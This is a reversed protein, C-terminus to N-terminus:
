RPVRAPGRRQRVPVPTIELVAAGNAAPLTVRLGRALQAGRQRALLRGSGADTVTYLVGPRVGQLPLTQAGEPSEQRFAFVVGRGHRWPEFAAWRHDDIPDAATLEYAGDSLVARNARYWSLWRAVRAADADSLKTLDTWFTVHSLLAIAMLEDIGHRGDLTGDLAGIGISSTPIWPAATWLDHILKAWKTSGHLHGNDFWSPGLALSEFPWSRQDNTEDLEFTVRPHRAQFTRVLSVFADEYDVYDHPPCDVWAMFDFKLERVDYTAVLRDVVDILHSRLGPNTVDWVGLGADDPVQATVDGTPACAWDPHAAYTTSSQNFELPSMWLGLRLGQDHVYRVFDPIGDRDSDPFRVPDFGWDGSEGGPGGQWQDDLMYTEIGLRKARDIQARLNPDSMGPGHNFPHFSNAGISRPYVPAVHDLDAVFAQAAEQAGGAYVGTFASGLELTTGPPVTRERVPVPHLPNGVRNYDPPDSKLPGADFVDRPPDVGVYTRGAADRGARYMSGGRHGSVLFWGEGQGDDYRAVQGERDFAGSPRSIERYDDRWDSGGHFALVEAQAPRAGAVQDLRTAGVRLVAPSANELTTRVEIVSDRPYLSYTRVLEPVGALSASGLRYRLVVQGGPGADPRGPDDPTARASADLLTWGTVSSTPVEDLTLEFEPAGPAAWHRGAVPDDLTAGTVHGQGDIAWTRAIRANGLSIADASVQAVVDRVRVPPGPAAMVDASASCALVAAPALVLALGSIRHM